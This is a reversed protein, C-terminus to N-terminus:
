QVNNEGNPDIIHFTKFFEADEPTFAPPSILPVALATELEKTREIDKLLAIHAIQSAYPCWHVMSKCTHCACVFKFQGDAACHIEKLEAINKCTCCTIELNTWTQIM